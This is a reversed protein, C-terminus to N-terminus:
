SGPPYKRLLDRVAERLLAERRKDDADFKIDAHAVGRWVVNNAASLDLVLSGRNMMKISQTAGTMPPLGWAVTGPLFQGITQTSMNTSLLLYYTITLDPASPSAQLGRRGMEGNVADLIIPEARQRAAEPNDDKTRAMKVEGPQGPTWGWTKVRKFDFKKDFDVSVDVRAGVTELGLLIGLLATLAVISRKVKMALGERHRERADEIDNVKITHRNNM